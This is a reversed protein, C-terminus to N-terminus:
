SLITDLYISKKEREDRNLTHCKRKEIFSIESEDLWCSGCYFFIAKKKINNFTVGAVCVDCVCVCDLDSNNAFNNVNKLTTLFYRFFCLKLFSAFRGSFAENYITYRLVNRLITM